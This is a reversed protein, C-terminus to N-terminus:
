EAHRGESEVTGLIERPAVGHLTQVGTPLEACQCGVWPRCVATADDFVRGAANVCAIYLRPATPRSRTLRELRQRLHSRM